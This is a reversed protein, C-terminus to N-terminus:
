LPLVIVTILLIDKVMKRIDRHYVEIFSGVFVLNKQTKWFSSIGFSLYLCVLNGKFFLFFNSFFISLGWCDLKTCGEEHWSDLTQHLRKRGNEQTDPRLHECEWVTLHCVPVVPQSPSSQECKIITSPIRAMEFQAGTMYIM